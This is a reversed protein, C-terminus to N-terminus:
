SSPLCPDAAREQMKVSTVCFAKVLKALCSWAQGVNASDAAEIFCERHKQKRKVFCQEISQRLQIQRGSASPLDLFHKLPARARIFEM